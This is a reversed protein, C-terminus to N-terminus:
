LSNKFYKSFEYNFFFKLNQKVKFEQYLDRNEQMLKVHEVSGHRVSLKEFAVTLLAILTHDSLCLFWKAFEWFINVQGKRNTLEYSFGKSSDSSMCALWLAMSKKMKSVRLKTPKLKHAKEFYNLVRRLAEKIEPEVQSVFFQGGDDEM